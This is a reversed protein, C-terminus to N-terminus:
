AAKRQMPRLGVELHCQLVSAIRSLMQFSLNQNGQEIRSIVSQTTKLRSALQVQTLGARERAQAIQVAIEMLPSVNEYIKRYSKEKHFKKFVADASITKM